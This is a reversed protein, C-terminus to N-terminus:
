KNQTLISLKTFDELTLTSPANDPSSKSPSMTLNTGNIAKSSTILIIVLNHVPEKMSSFLMSNMFTKKAPLQGNESIWSKIM